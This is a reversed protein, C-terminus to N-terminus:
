VPSPDATSAAWDPEFGLIVTDPALQPNFLFNHWWTAQHLPHHEALRWVRCSLEWRQAYAEFVLRCRGAERIAAAGESGPPFTATLMDSFEQGKQYYVQSLFEIAKNRREAPDATRKAIHMLEPTKSANPAKNLVTIVHGMPAEAGELWLAPTVADDPRGLGERMAIQRVRCQWKLFADRLPHRVPTIGLAATLESM